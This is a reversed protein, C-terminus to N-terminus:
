HNYTYWQSAQGTAINVVRAASYYYQGHLYTGYRATYYPAVNTNISTPVIFPGILRYASEPLSRHGRQKPAMKLQIGENALLPYPQLSMLINGPHAVVVFETLQSLDIPVAPVTLIPQEASLLIANCQMFYQYGNLSRINPGQQVNTWITAVSRWSQQEDVTLQSWIASLSGLRIQAQAYPVSAHHNRGRRARIINGAQTSQLISGRHVGHMGTVLASYNVIAM